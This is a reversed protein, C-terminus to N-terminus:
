IHMVTLIISRLYVLVLNLNLVKYNPSHIEIFDNNILFERCKSTFYSQVKFMLTNKDTRLDIWRYDLRLDINTEEGKPAVIPSPSAISDITITDPYM